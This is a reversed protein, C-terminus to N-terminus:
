SSPEAADSMQEADDAPVPEPIPTDDILRDLQALTTLVHTSDDHMRINIRGDTTWCHKFRWVNRELRVKYFISSRLRTLDESVYVDNCNKRADYLMRRTNYTTFKVIIPRTKGPRPRGVRHSRGISNPSLQVGVKQAYAMVIQDIIERPLENM